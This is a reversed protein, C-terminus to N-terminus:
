LGPSCHQGDVRDRLGRAVWVVVFVHSAVLLFLVIFSTRCGESQFKNQVIILFLYSRKIKESLHELELEGILRCCTMQQVFFFSSIIKYLFFNGFVRNLNILFQLHIMLTRYKLKGRPYRLAGAGALVFVVGGGWSAYM